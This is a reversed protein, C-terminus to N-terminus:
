RDALKGVAPRGHCADITPDHEDFSGNGALCDLGLDRVPTLVEPAGLGGRHQVGGGRADLRGARVELGSAAPTLQLVKGIRLLEGLFALHQMALELAGVQFKRDISDVDQSHIVGPAIAKAALEM